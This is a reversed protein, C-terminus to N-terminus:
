ALFIRDPFRIGRGRSIDMSAALPPVRMDRRDLDERRQFVPVPEAIPPRLMGGAKRALDTRNEVGFKALLASIHFKVTRVSINLKTAIEKNARHHIVADLIERQRPSLAAPHAVSRGETLLEKARALMQGSISNEAPVLIMFDDPDFGRALCQMALLSASRELTANSGSEAEVRFHAVGTARDCFVFVKKKASERKREQPLLKPVVRLKKL